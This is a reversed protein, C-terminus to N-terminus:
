AQAEEGDLYRRSTRRQEDLPEYTLGGYRLDEYMEVSRAVADVHIMEHPDFVVGNVVKSKDELTKHNVARGFYWNGSHTGRLYVTRPGAVGPKMSLKFFRSATMTELRGM